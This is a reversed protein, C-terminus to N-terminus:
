FHHQGRRRRREKHKPTVVRSTLKKPGPLHAPYQMLFPPLFGKPTQEHEWNLRELSRDREGQIPYNGYSYATTEQSPGNLNFAGGTLIHNQYFIIM